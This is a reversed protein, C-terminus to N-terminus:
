PWELLAMNPDTSVQYDKNWTMQLLRFAAALEPTQFALCSILNVGLVAAHVILLELFWSGCHFDVRCSKSLWQLCVLTVQEKVADPVRKWLFRAEERAVM